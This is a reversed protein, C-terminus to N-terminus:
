RLDSRLVRQTSLLLKVTWRSAVRACSVGARNLSLICLAKVWLVAPLLGCSVAQIGAQHRHHKLLHRFAQLGGAPGACNAVNHDIASPILGEPALTPQTDTEPRGQVRWAGEQGVSGAGCQRM